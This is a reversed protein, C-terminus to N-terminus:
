PPTTHHKASQKKDASRKRREWTRLSRLLPTISKSPVVMDPVGGLNSISQVSWSSPM